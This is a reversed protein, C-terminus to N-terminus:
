AAAATAHLVALGPIRKSTVHRVLIGEAPTAGFTERDKIVPGHQMLYVALGAGRKTVEAV